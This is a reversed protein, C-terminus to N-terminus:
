VAERRRSAPTRPSDEGSKRGWIRNAAGPVAPDSARLAPAAGTLQRRWSPLGAEGSSSAV